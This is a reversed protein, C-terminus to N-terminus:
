VGYLLPTTVLSAAFNWRQVLQGYILKMVRYHMDGVTAAGSTDSAAFRQPRLPLVAPRAALQCDAGDDATM